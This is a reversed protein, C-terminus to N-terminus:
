RRKRRAIHKLNRVEVVCATISISDLVFSIEFLSAAPTTGFCKVILCRLATVLTWASISSCSVTLPRRQFSWRIGWLLDSLCFHEFCEFASYNSLKSISNEIQKTGCNTVLGCSPIDIRPFRLLKTNSSLRIKVNVWWILPLLKHCEELWTCRFFSENWWFDAM